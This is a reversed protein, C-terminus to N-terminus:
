MAGRYGRVAIAAGHSYFLFSFSPIEPGAPDTDFLLSFICFKDDNYNSLREIKQRELERSMVFVLFNNGCSNGCREFVTIHM